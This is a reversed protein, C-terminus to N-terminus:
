KPLLFNSLKPDFDVLALRIFTRRVWHLDCCSNVKFSVFLSAALQVSLFTANAPSHLLVFIHLVAVSGPIAIAVYVAVDVHIAVTILVAVSVPVTVSGRVAAHVVAV